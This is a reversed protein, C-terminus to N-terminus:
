LWEEEVGCTELVKDDKNFIGAESIGAEGELFLLDIAEDRALVEV